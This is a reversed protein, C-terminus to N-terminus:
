VPSLTMKEFFKERMADAWIQRNKPNFEIPLCFKYKQGSWFIILSFILTYVLLHKQYKKM